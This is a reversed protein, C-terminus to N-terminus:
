CIDSPLARLGAPPQGFIIERCQCYFVFGGHLSKLSTCVGDRGIKITSNRHFFPNLHSSSSPYSSPSGLLNKRAFYVTNASVDHELFRLEFNPLGFCFRVIECVGAEFGFTLRRHEYSQWIEKDNLGASQIYQTM